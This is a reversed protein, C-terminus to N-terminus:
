VCPPVGKYCIPIGATFEVVCDCVKALTRDIRALGRRYAITWEDYPEADCYICDSVFVTNPARRAFEALERALADSAEPHIGDPAFMRNALLATVSDLLFSGNRDAADLCALVESGCELTQFGWGAREQRHRFIRAEDEADRPIMTAIYYLPAGARKAARLAYLSKGNKSGGSILMSM